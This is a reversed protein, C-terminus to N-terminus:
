ETYSAGRPDDVLGEALDDRGDMAEDSTHEEDM